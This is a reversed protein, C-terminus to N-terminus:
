IYIRIALVSTITIGNNQYLMQIIIYRLDFLDESHHVTLQTHGDRTLWVDEIIPPSSDVHVLVSDTITKNM